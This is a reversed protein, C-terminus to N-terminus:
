RDPGGSLSLAGQSMSMNNCCTFLCGAKRSAGTPRSECGSCNMTRIRHSYGNQCSSAFWSRLGTEARRGHWGGQANHNAVSFYPFQPRGPYVICSVSCSSHSSRALSTRQGAWALLVQATPAFLLRVSQTRAPKRSRLLPRYNTSRTWCSSSRLTGSTVRGRKM